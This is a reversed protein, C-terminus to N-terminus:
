VLIDRRDFLFATLGVLGAAILLMVAASGVDFGSTVLSAGDLYNYISLRQLADGVGPGAASGLSNLLYSTAVFVGALAGAIVRRRLLTGLVATMSMVVLLLPMFALCAQLLMAGDIEAAAPNISKSIMLGAWAGLVIILTLSAEALSREAVVRWRPLPLSLLPSIAGLEEDNATIGLGGFVAFVSLLVAGFTFFTFGIFGQPSAMQAPDELGITQTMAPPMAEMLRVYGELGAADPVLFMVYMGFVGIGIASFLTSRWGQRLTEKFVEGVM